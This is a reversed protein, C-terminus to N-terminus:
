TGWFPRLAGSPCSNARLFRHLGEGARGGEEEGAKGEGTRNEVEEGTRSRRGEGGRGEGGKKGEERQLVLAGQARVTKAAVALLNFVFTKTAVALRRM